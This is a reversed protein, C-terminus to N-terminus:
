KNGEHSNIEVIVYYGDIRQVMRGTGPKRYVAGPVLNKEVWRPKQTVFTISTPLYVMQNNGEPPAPREGIPIATPREPQHRIM